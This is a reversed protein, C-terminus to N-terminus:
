GKWFQAAADLAQRTPRSRAQKSPKIKGSYRRMEVTKGDITASQTPRNPKLAGPLQSKFINSM